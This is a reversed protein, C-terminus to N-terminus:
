SNEQFIFRQNSNAKKSILQCDYTILFILEGRLKQYFINFHRFFITRCICFINGRLSKAWSTYDLLINMCLPSTGFSTFPDKRIIIYYYLILWSILNTWCFLRNERNLNTQKSLACGEMIKHLKESDFRVCLLFLM